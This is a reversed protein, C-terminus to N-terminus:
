FIERKAIKKEGIRRPRTPRTGWYYWPGIFDRTGEQAKRAPRPFQQGCAPVRARRPCALGPRWWLRLSAIRVSVAGMQLGM